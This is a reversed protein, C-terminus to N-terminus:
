KILFVNIIKNFIRESLVWSILIIKLHYNKLMTGIYNFQECLIVHQIVKPSDCAPHAKIRSHLYRDTKGIYHAHCGPDPLGTYWLVENNVSHQIKWLLKLWRNELQYHLSLPSRLLPTIKRTFSHTLKTKYKPLFALNIWTNKQRFLRWHHHVHKPTGNPWLFGIANLTRILKSINSSFGNWSM